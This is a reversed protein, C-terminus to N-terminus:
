RKRKKISLETNTSLNNVVKETTRGLIYGGMGLKLLSWFETPVENLKVDVFTAVIVVGAFVFMLIPRWIRQLTNGTMETLLLQQQTNTINTSYDLILKTLDTKAKLREEKSTVNRDIAAGANKILSTVSDIVIKTIKM